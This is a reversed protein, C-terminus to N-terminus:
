LVCNLIMVCMYFEKKTQNITCRGIKCSACGFPMFHSTRGVCWFHHCSALDLQPDWSTRTNTYIQILRLQNPSVSRPTTNTNHKPTSPPTQHPPPPLIRYPLDPTPLIQYGAQPLLSIDAWVMLDRVLVVWRVWM